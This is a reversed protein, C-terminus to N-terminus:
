FLNQKLLYFLASDGEIQATERSTECGSMLLKDGECVKWEWRTPLIAVVSVELLRQYSPNTM